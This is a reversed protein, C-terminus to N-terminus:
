AAASASVPRKGFQGEDTTIEGYDPPDCPTLDGTVWDVIWTKENVVMYKSKRPSRKTLIAM